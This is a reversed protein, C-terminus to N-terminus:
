LYDGLLSFGAWYSPHPFNQKVMLQAQRISESKDMTLYNRYFHKMLVATSLDDVRWLSSILSHTGAYLFARNMGIIEGGQLKGLGTQCASLTVLDANIELSFIDKMQLKRDEPTDASLYIASFLPNLSQFEGHAALHIIGYQSINETIWAKTAKERTLFDGDPFSWRISQSELESMPLDYNFDGLNPNGVALVRTRKKGKGRKDFAFKMASASPGYFLPQSEILYGSEGKLAAFALFHLSGDPIIGLRTVSKLETAFPQILWQYLQKMIADVPELSSMRSRYSRILDAVEKEGVPVRKFLTEEPTVLWIFIEKQTLLYALIGVGKEKELSTKFETLTLPTVSVFSSLEPNRGQLDWKAEEAMIKAHRYQEMLKPPPNDVASVRSAIEEMTQFLKQIKELEKKDAMDKFVVKQNGLLDLFNRARFRELYNFAQTKDDMDILLTIFERYLEHKNEQFSNRLEDIKLSARIGEVVAVAEKYWGVAEKQNGQLTLVKAQGAAARWISEKLGRRKSIEYARKFYGYAKELHKKQKIREPILHITGLELLAKAQNIPNKIEHSIKESLIFRDEAKKFKGMKMLAIGINRHDYSLGWRSKRQRDITESQTFFDLAKTYQKLQLQVQGANNLSTALETPIDERRALDIAKEIHFLAKDNENLTWYVLGRTNSIMIELPIDQARKALKDATLLHELAPQYLGQFWSLNALYLEGSAMLFPDDLKKGLNLGQQYHHNAEQFDGTKEFTLGVELLSQAEGKFDELERYILVAKQFTDRAQAYSGLRLHYIRGIKRFQDAMSAPDDLKKFLDFSKSFELLADDYSGRNEKVIGLTAVATAMQEESGERKWLKVAEELHTTSTEYQELRSYIIGLTYLAQAREEVLDEALDEALNQGHGKSNLHALFQEQYYSARQFDGLQSLGTVAFQVLKSYDEEKEALHIISLAEEVGQVAKLMDGDQFAQISSDLTDDYLNIAREQKAEIELGDFGYLQFGDMKELKNSKKSIQQTAKLLAAHPSLTSLHSLYDSVVHELTSRPTTSKFYVVHPFGSRILASALPNSSLTNNSGPKPLFLTHGAQISLTNLPLRQWVDQHDSFVLSFPELSHDTLLIHTSEVSDQNNEEDEKLPIIQIPTSTTSLTPTLSGALTVRAHFLGQHSKANLIDFVTNSRIIPKHNPILRDLLTINEDTSAVYILSAKELSDLLSPSNKFDEKPGIHATKVQTGDHLFLMRQGNTDTMIRLYPKEPSFVEELMPDPDLPHLHFLTSPHEEYVTLLLEEWQPALQEMKEQDGTSAAKRLANLTEIVEAQYEGLGKLFFDEGLTDYLYSVTKRMQIQEIISLTESATDPDDIFASSYAIALRDFLQSQVGQNAAIMLPPYNFLHEMSQTLLQRKSEPDSTKEGQILFLVWRIPSVSKSNNSTISEALQTAEHIKEADLALSLLNLQVKERLIDAETKAFLNPHDLVKLSRRLYSIGLGKAWNQTHLQNLANTLADGEDKPNFENLNILTFAANSLTYFSRADVSKGWDPQNLPSTLSLIQDYSLNEGNLRQESAIKFGNFLNVRTGYDLGLAQTLKLSELLATLAESRKGLRYALIGSRNLVVAKETALAASEKPSLEMPFLALKKQYYRYAPETENLREYTDAVYGFLMKKEGVQDFGLAASSGQDGDLSFLLNIMGKGEKPKRAGYKQITDLSKLYSDLAKKLSKRGEQSNTDGLDHLSLGINRRLISLNETRGLALNGELAQSFYQAALLSNGAERHSLALRELLEMQLVKQTEPLLDLALQYQKVSEETHKTKFCSEAFRKRAVVQRMKPGHTNNRLSWQSYYHYAEQHNGLAFTVNGLNLLLDAEGEPFIRPDLLRLAIQYSEFSHELSGKGTKSLKESQEYAWGLTQHFYFIGPQKRVVGELIPIITAFDPPSQYTLILGRIYQILPDDPQKALRENYSKLVTEYEKLRVKTAVYARHAEVSDPVRQIITSLIKAAVKLDGADRLHEASRVQQLVMLRLAHEIKDQKEGSLTQLQRYVEGAKEYEQRDTLLQAKWWLAPSFLSNQDDSSTLLEELVNLTKLDEGSKQYMEAIRFLAKSKLLKLQPYRGALTRLSDIQQNINKGKQAVLVAESVARRGWSTEEGFTQIVDLFVKELSTTDNLRQYAKGRAFLARARVEPDNIGEVKLLQNLAKSPSNNLLHLLGAEILATGYVRSKKDFRKGVSLIKKSAKLIAQKKTIKSLDAYTNHLQASLAQIHFLAGWSEKQSQFPHSIALAQTFHGNEKLREVFDYHFRLRQQNELTDALNKSINEMVLFGMDAQDSDFFDEAVQIAKEPNTYNSQFTKLDIRHIEGSKIDAFFLRNEASVPSLHHNNSPTLRYESLISHENKKPDFTLKYLSSNDSVTIRGDGDTDQEYRVFLITVGDATHSLFSPQSEITKSNTLNIVRKDEPILVKLEGQTTYLIWGEPTLSFSDADTLIIEEQESALLRRTLKQRGTSFDERLFYIWKEDLGWTPQSERGSLNTLRKEKGSSIDMWYIDGKPDTKQAVYLLQSGDRNLSPDRDITPHHTLRRSLPSAGEALDRFWLDRNKGRDSVFVMFRGNQSVSPSFDADPHATVTPYQSAHSNNTLPFFLLTCVCLSISLFRLLNPTNM